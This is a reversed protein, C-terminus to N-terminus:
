MLVLTMVAGAAIPVAYPLRINSRAVPFQGAGVDLALDALVVGFRRRYILVGLAFIGGAVGTWLATWFVFVPGGLAGLAALLKLDGAGRGLLAVPVLFLTAGLLLGSVAVLLGLSGNMFINIAIGLLMTPLTLVNYIKRDHLDTVVAISLVGLIMALVPLSIVNRLQDLTTGNM